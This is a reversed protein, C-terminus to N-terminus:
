VNQPPREIRGPHGPHGGADQDFSFDTAEDRILSEDSQQRCASVKFTEYSTTAASPHPVSPNPISRCNPGNCPTTPVPSPSDVQNPPDMDSSHETGSPHALWDGCSGYATSGTWSFIALFLLVAAVVCSRHDRSQGQRQSISPIM